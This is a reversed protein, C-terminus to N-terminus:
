LINYSFLQHVYIDDVDCEKVKIYLNEELLSQIKDRKEKIFNHEISMSIIERTWDTKTNKEDFFSKLVDYEGGEIDLSLFHIMHSSCNRFLCKSLTESYMEIGVSHEKFDNPIDYISSFLCNHYGYDEVANFKVIRGDNTIPRDSCKCKRNVILKKYSYPNCEVCLGNWNYEKELIYTNSIHVGDGAGIEVFYGDEMGKFVNEIIFKDQGFQSKYEVNKM